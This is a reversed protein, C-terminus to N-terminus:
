YSGREREREVKLRQKIKRLVAEAIKDVDQEEGEEGGEGGAGTEASVISGTAQSGAGTAERM